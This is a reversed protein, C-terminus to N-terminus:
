LQSWFSTDATITLSHSGVFIHYKVNKNPNITTIERWESENLAHFDGTIGIFHTGPAQPITIQRREGPRIEISQKDLLTGQLTQSHQRLMDFNLSLFPKRQNLQYITIVLPESHGNMDPNLYHASDFNLTITKQTKPWFSCACVLLCMALLLTARM